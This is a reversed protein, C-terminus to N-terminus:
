FEYGDENIDEKKPKKNKTHTQNKFDEILDSNRSKNKKEQKKNTKSDVQNHNDNDYEDTLTTLVEPQQEKKIERGWRITQGLVTTIESLVYYTNAIDKLSLLNSKAVKLKDKYILLVQRVKNTLSASGLMKDINLGNINDANIADKALHNLLICSRNEVLEEIALMVTQAIHSKQIEVLNTSTLSDILILDPNFSDIYSKIIYFDKSKVPKGFDQETIIRNQTIIKVRNKLQQQLQKYKKDDFVAFYEYLISNIKGAIEEQDEEASLILAKEIQKVKIEDNLDQGLLANLIWQLMITTKGSGGLGAFVTIKGKPILNEILWEREVIKDFKEFDIEEDDYNISQKYITKVFEFGLKEANKIVTKIREQEKNSLNKELVFMQEVVPKIKIDKYIESASVYDNAAIYDDLDKEIKSKSKPLSLMFCNQFEKHKTVFDYIAKNGADDDDLAFVINDNTKLLYKFLNINQELNQASGISVVRVDNLAIDGRNKYEKALLSITNFEGETVFVVFKKRDTIPYLNFANITTKKVKVIAFQKNEREDLFSINSLESSWVLREDSTDVTKPIKYIYRVKIQEVLGAPNTYFFLLPTNNKATAIISNLKTQLDKLENKTKEDTKEDFKPMLDSLYFQPVNPITGVLLYDSILEKYHPNRFELYKHAIQANISNNQDLADSCINAFNTLFQSQLNAQHYSEFNKLTGSYGCAFCKFFAGDGKDKIFLNPKHSDQHNPCFGQWQSGQKKWNFDWNPWKEQLKQKLQEISNDINNNTNNDM